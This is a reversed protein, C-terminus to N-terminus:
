VRQLDMSDSRRENCIGERWSIQAHIWSPGAPIHIDRDPHGEGTEEEWSDKNNRCVAKGSNEARVPKQGDCILRRGASGREKNVVICVMLEGSSFGKRILVHRVLGERTEERYAPVQYRKM